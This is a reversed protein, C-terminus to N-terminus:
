DRRVQRRVRYLNFDEEFYFWGRSHAVGIPEIFTLFTIANRSIPHDDLLYVVGIALDAGRTWRTFVVANESMVVHRYGKDFLMAVADQTKVCSIRVDQQLDARMMGPSDGRRIIITEHKSNILYDKVAVIYEYDRAFHSRMTRSPNLPPSGDTIAVIFIAFPVLYGVILTGVCIAVIGRIIWKRMKDAKTM